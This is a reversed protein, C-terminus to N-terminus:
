ECNLHVKDKLRPHINLQPFLYCLYFNLLLRYDFDQLSLAANEEYLGAFPM